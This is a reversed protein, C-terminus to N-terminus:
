RKTKLARAVTELITQRLWDSYNAILARQDDGFPYIDQLAERLVPGSHTHSAAFRLQSRKLGYRKELERCLDDYLWKPIGVLDATVLVARGGDPATLALVKVWLDDLTGEARNTRSAFGGQWILDKPTIKAQATGFTWTADAAALKASLVLFWGALCAIIISVGRM